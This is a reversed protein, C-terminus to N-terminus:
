DCDCVPHEDYHKSTNLLVEPLPKPNLLQERLSSLLEKDYYQKSFSEVNQNYDFPIKAIEKESFVKNNLAYAFCDSRGIHDISVNRFQFSFICEYIMKAQKIVTQELSADLSIDDIAKNTYLFNFLETNKRAYEDFIFMPTTALDELAVKAVNNLLISPEM